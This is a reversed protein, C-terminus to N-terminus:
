RIPIMILSCVLAAVCVADIVGSKEPGGLGGAGAGRTGLHSLYTLHFALPM